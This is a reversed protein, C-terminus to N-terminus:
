GKQELHEIVINRFDIMSASTRMHLHRHLELVLAKNMGLRSLEEYITQVWIRRQLAWLSNSSWDIAPIKTM